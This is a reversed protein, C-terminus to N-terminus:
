KTDRAQITAIATKYILNNDLVITKDDSNRLIGDLKIGNILYVCVVKNNNTQLFQEETM